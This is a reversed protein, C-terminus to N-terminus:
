FYGGAILLMWWFIPIGEVWFAAFYKSQHIRSKYIFVLTALAVILTVLLTKIEIASKTFEMLMLLSLLGAGLLRTNSVGLVQPITELEPADYKLDRIEFPLMLVIVFLFRQIFEIAADPFMLHESEVLPVVVTIGAWVLAIIFVKIGKLSRLNSSRFIPLTYLITLSGFLGGAILVNLSQQLLSYIMGLFCAVSFIRIALLNRTRILHHFNAIGAYKVFNYGVITGFFIFLLLDPNPSLHFHLLTVGALAVVALSVHM